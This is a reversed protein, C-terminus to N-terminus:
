INASRKSKIQTIWYRIQNGKNSFLLRCKQFLNDQRFDRYSLFLIFIGCSGFYFNLLRHMCIIFLNIFIIFSICIFFGIASSMYARNLRCWVFSWSTHNWSLVSHGKSILFFVDNLRIWANTMLTIVTFFSFSTTQFFNTIFICLFRFSINVQTDLKLISSIAWLNRLFFLWFALYLFYNLFLIFTLIGLFFLLLM